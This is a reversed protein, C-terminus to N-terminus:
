KIQDSRWIGLYRGPTVMSDDIMYVPRPFAFPSRLLNLPRYDGTRIDSNFWNVTDTTACVYKASKTLNHIVKKADSFSLHFIVERCLAMDSAPPVEKTADCLLFRVNSRSYKSNQEIISPVVDIGTYDISFKEQGMWNWDGCGVDVLSHCGFNNMANLIESFLGSTATLSSGLGSRSEQSQSHVWGGDSYINAFVVGPDQCDDRPVLYGRKRSYHDLMSSAGLKLAAHRVVEKGSRVHDMRSQQLILAIEGETSYAKRTTTPAGSPM